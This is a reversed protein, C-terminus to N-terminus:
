GEYRGFLVVMLLTGYELRHEPITEWTHSRNPSLVQIPLFNELFELSLSWVGVVFGFPM